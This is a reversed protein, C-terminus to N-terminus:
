FFFVLNSFPNLLLDSEYSPKRLSHYEDLMMPSLPICSNLLSPLQDSVSNSYLIHISRQWSSTGTLIGGSHAFGWMFMSFDNPEWKPKKKKIRWDTKIILFYVSNLYSAFVSLIRLSLTPLIKKIIAVIVLLSIGKRQSKIWHPRSQCVKM